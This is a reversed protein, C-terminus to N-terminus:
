DAPQSQSPFRRAPAASSIRIAGSGLGAVHQGFVQDQGPASAGADHEACAHGDDHGAAGVAHTDANGRGSHAGQVRVMERLLVFRGLPMMVARRLRVHRSRLVDAHCKSNSM